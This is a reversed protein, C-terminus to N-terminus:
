EAAEAPPPLLRQQPQLGNRRKAWGIKSYIAALTAPQGDENLPANRARALDRLLMALAWSNARFSGEIADSNDVADCLQRLYDRKEWEGLIVADMQDLLTLTRGSVRQAELQARTSPLRVVLGRRTSRPTNDDTPM